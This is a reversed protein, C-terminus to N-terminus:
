AKLPLDGQTTFTILNSLTDPYNNNSLTWATPDGSLLFLETQGYDAIPFKGFEEGFSDVDNVRRADYPGDERAKIYVADPVGDYDFDVANPDKIGKLM